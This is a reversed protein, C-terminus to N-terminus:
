EDAYVFRNPELPHQGFSFEEGFDRDTEPTVEFIRFNQYHGGCGLGDLHDDMCESCGTSKFWPFDKSKVTKLTQTGQQKYYDYSCCSCEHIYWVYIPHSAHDCETDILELKFGHQQLEAEFQKSMFSLEEPLANQSVQHDIKHPTPLCQGLWHRM